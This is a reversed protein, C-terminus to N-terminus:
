YERALLLTTSTRDADTIIWLRESDAREPMKYVSLVRYGLAIARRNIARDEPCLDGDDGRGHRSLLTLPSIDARSLAEQAGPTIVIRGLPFRCPSSSSGSTIPLDTM